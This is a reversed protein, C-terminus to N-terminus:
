VLAIVRSMGDTGGKVKPGGLLLIAGKAPVVDLNAV